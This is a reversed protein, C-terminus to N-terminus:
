SNMLKRTKIGIDMSRTPEMLYTFVLHGSDDVQFGSGLQKDTNHLNLWAGAAAQGDVTFTGQVNNQPVILNDLVAKIPLQTM